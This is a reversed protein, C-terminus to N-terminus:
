DDETTLKRWGTTLDCQYWRRTDKAYMLVGDGSGYSYSGGHNGSTIVGTGPCPPFDALNFQHGQGIGGYAEIFLVSDRSSGWIPNKFEGLWGGYRPGHPLFTVGGHNGAYEWCTGGDDLTRVWTGGDDYPQGGDNNVSDCIDLHNGLTLYLGPGSELAIHGSIGSIDQLTGEWAPNEPHNQLWLLSPQFVVTGNAKVVFVQNGAGPGDLISLFGGADRYTSPKIYVDAASSNSARRGRLELSNDDFTPVVPGVGVMMGGYTIISVNVTDNGLNRPFLETIQVLDEFVKSGALSQATTTICGTQTPSAALCVIVTSGGDSVTTIGADSSIALGINWRGGTFSCNAGNVCNVTDAKVNTSTLTRGDQQVRLQALLLLLLM